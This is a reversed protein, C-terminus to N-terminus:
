SRGLGQSSAFSDSIVSWVKKAVERKTKRDTSAVVGDADMIHVENENGGFVPKKTDNAVILDLKASSLKKRASALLRRKGVGHEAKFGVVFVTPHRRKVEDVIKPTPALELVIKRGSKIKGRRKEPAYDAVAAASVFVDYRKKALERMIARRMEAATEVRIIKARSPMKAETPGCVVTVMMGLALAEKAIEAGMRGSSRNSIFRVDDVPERTPGASVLVRM